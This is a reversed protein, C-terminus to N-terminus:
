RRTSRHLSNVQRRRIQATEIALENEVRELRSPRSRESRVDVCELTFDRGHRLHRVSDGQRAARGRKVQREGHETDSGAVLDQGRGQRKGRGGVGDGIDARRRDEDVRRRLGPRDIGVQEFLFQRFAHTGAAPGRRHDRDVQVALATVVVADRGEAFPVTHRQDLIGGLRESRRVAATRCAREARAPDKGEVAVLDDRGAAAAHEDRVRARDDIPRPVQRRLGPVLRRM